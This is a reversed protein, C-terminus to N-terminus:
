LQFRLGTMANTVRAVMEGLTVPFLFLPNAASNFFARIGNAERATIARGMAALYLPMPADDRFLRQRIGFSRLEPPCVSLTPGRPPVSQSLGASTKWMPVLSACWPSIVRRRPLRLLCPSGRQSTRRLRGKNIPSEPDILCVVVMILLPTPKRTMPLNAPKM